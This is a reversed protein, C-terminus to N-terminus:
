RLVKIIEASKVISARKPAEAGEILEM